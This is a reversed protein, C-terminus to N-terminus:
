HDYFNDISNMLFSSAVIETDSLRVAKRHSTLLGVNLMILIFIAAASTWFAVPELRGTKKQHIEEEIRDFLLPSPEARQVSKLLGFTQEIDM